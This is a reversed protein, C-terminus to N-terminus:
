NGTVAGEVEEAAGEVADAASELASGAGEVTVTVDDGSSVDAGSFLFYAMVVVAVALAGILFGMGAGGAKETHSTHTTHQINPDNEM